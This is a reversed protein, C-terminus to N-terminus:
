EELWKFIDLHIQGYMYGPNVLRAYFTLDNMARQRTEKGTDPMRELKDQMLEHWTKEM